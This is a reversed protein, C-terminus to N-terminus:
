RPEVEAAVESGAPRVMDLHGEGQAPEGAPFPREQRLKAERLLMEDPLGCEDTYHVSPVTGSTVRGYRADAFKGSDLETV